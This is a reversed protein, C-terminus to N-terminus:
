FMRETGGGESIQQLGQTIVGLKQQLVKLGAIVTERPELAGTTEVTMYFRDPKALFDFVEGGEQELEGNKSVPWEAKVDDEVWYTTHRLNNHPDYEFANGTCPSWKSHEKATGKKAICRLILEQGKKLKVISIGSDNPGTTVPKVNSHASILDHSTVIMSEGEEINECKVNL